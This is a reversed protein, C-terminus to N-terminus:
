AMTAAQPIFPWFLSPYLIATLLAIRTYWHTPLCAPLLATHLGSEAKQPPSRRLGVREGCGPRRLLM